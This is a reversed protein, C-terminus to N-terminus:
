DFTVGRLRRAIPHDLSDIVHAGFAMRLLERFPLNPWEPEPPTGIPVIADYRQAKEGPNSKIQITEKMAKEALDRASDNWSNPRGDKSFKVPWLYTVGQTNQVTFLTVATVHDRLESDALEPLVLYVIREYEVIAADVRYDPSPHVRIFEQKGPKGVAVEMLVSKMAATVAFDQRIRFRSPDFPDPDDVTNTM